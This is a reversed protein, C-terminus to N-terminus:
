KGYGRKKMIYEAQEYSIGNQKAAVQIVPDLHDAAVAPTGAIISNFKEVKEKPKLVDTKGPERASFKEVNLGAKSYADLEATQKQAIRREIQDIKALAVEPTDTMKPLMGQYRIIDADTLKGGELSKGIEQAAMKTMAEISKSTTGYPNWESVKGVIPGFKNKNAEIATRLDDTLKYAGEHAALRDAQEAALPKGSKKAALELEKLANAQALKEREIALQAKDHISKRGLEEGKLALEKEKFGHEVEKEKQKEEKALKEKAAEEQKALKRATEARIKDLASSGVEAGLAGGQKGGFAAGLLIPALGTIAQAMVEQESPEYNAPLLPSVSGLDLEETKKKKLNDALQGLGFGEM